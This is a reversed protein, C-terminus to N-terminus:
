KSPHEPALPFTFLKGTRCSCERSEAVSILGSLDCLDGRGVVIQLFKVLVVATSASPSHSCPAASGRTETGSPRRRCRALYRCSHVEQQSILQYILSRGIHAENCRAHQQIKM